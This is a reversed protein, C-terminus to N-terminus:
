RSAKVRISRNGVALTHEGPQSFSVRFVIADTRDERAWAWKRSAPKGDVLLTVRSGDLFTHGINATVSVPEDIKVETKSTTLDKCVYNTELNWGGVELRLDGQAAKASPFRATIDRSEGPLLSFYNDDWLVPLVEEGSSSRVLALQVFFAVHSTPNTLKVTARRETDQTQIDCSAQLKTMPLSELAKYDPTDKTRLWYFGDSVPRGRADSLELKVFYVPSVGDPEPVVFSERYGDAPADVRATKDWLQKAAADFVRARVSLGAAPESRANIVSVTRDLLNLQVHLPQCANKIYYYSVMPKFYWDFVQWEVSPWCANIKWQTFGSTIDWMRHQVAEFMSRHQEATLLHAKWAYDAASDADGLLRELAEEYPKYYSCADHHAWVADPAFRQCPAMLDPIFRALSSIPPVSPSCSEMMFMWTGGERVWRFYDVPELWGYSKPPYDNMGVPLDAKVWEPTGQDRTSKLTNEPVYKTKLKLNARYDPFSGSPIFPRTGDLGVVDRRWNVYIDERPLGENMFMHLLLSPHNRYRKVVDATGRALLDPDPVYKAWPVLSWCGYYCNGLMLGYRDCLDMFADPPNPLDEFYILNMHAETYYRIETEFRAPDWDLLIEPQVYGGRCFVRRGNILFRRGHWGDRDHMQSGIQRVGFRVTQVDSVVGAAELTLTLDYLPQDGYGHPWWLRPHQMVPSPTVALQKTENPRLEIPQEFAVDTGEIRGRLKGRVPADTANVVETSIKLTARDTEPLPLETVIFPHRGAAPGTWELWVDQLIGMNRDPVTPMCDYGISFVMTADQQIEKHYKRDRGLPELQTDPTSPHDVPFIKVALVNPGATVHPTVDFVFREYIGVM